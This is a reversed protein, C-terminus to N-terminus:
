LRLGEKSAFKELKRATEIAGEERLVIYHARLIKETNQAFKRDV